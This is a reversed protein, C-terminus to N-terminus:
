SWDDDILVTGLEIGGDGVRPRTLHILQPRPGVLYDGRVSDGSERALAIDILDKELSIQLLLRCVLKAFEKSGDKPIRLEDAPQM